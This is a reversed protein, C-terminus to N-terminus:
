CMNIICFCFVGQWLIMIKLEFKKENCTHIEEMLKLHTFLKREILNFTLYDGSIVWVNARSCSLSWCLAHSVFHFPLTFAASASILFAFSSFDRFLLIALLLVKSTPLTFTFLSFCLLIKAGVILAALLPFTRALSPFNSPIGVWSCAMEPCNPWCPGDAAGGLPTLRIVLLVFLLALALTAYFYFFWEWVGLIAYLTCDGVISQGWWGEEVWRCNEM